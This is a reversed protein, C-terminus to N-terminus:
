TCHVVKRQWENQFYEKKKAWTRDYLPIQWFWGAPLYEEKANWDTSLPAVDLHPELLRSVVCVSLSSPVKPPWWAAASSVTLNSWAKFPNKVESDSWPLPYREEELFNQYYCFSGLLPRFSCSLTIPYIWAMRLNETEETHQIREMSRAWKDLNKM